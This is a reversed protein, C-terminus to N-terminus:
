SIHSPTCRADISVDPSWKTKAQQRHASASDTHTIRGLAPGPSDTDTNQTLM